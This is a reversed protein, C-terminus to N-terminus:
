PMVEQVPQQMCLWITTSALDTVQMDNPDQKMLQEFAEAQQELRSMEIPDPPARTAVGQLCCVACGLVACCAMHTLAGCWLVVQCLKNGCCLSTCLASM